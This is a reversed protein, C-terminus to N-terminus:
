TIKGLLAVLNNRDEPTLGAAFTDKTAVIENLDNLLDLGDKSISLEQANRNVWKNRLMRAIMRSINGKDKSLFKQLEVQRMQKTSLAQLITWQEATVKKEAFLRAISRRSQGVAMSLVSHLDQREM